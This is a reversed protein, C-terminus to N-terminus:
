PTTTPPNTRGVRQGAPRPNQHRARYGNLADKFNNWNTIDLTGDPRITYDDKKFGMFMALTGFMEEGKQKDGLVQRCAELHGNLRDAFTSENGDVRSLPALEERMQELSTNKVYKNFEVDEFADSYAGRGKIAEAYFRRPSSDSRTAVKGVVDLNPMAGDGRIMTMKEGMLMDEGKTMSSDYGGILAYAEASYGTNWGGTIVRNWTYNWNPNNEPRYEKRRWLSESFDWLRRNMFLFDNEMMEDPYRDQIGRAADFQPNEDLKTMLNYATKRDVRLLDADESEIYLAKSQGARQLSRMLNLDTLVKRAHGVNAHDRDFTVDVYNIHYDKGQARSDAIFRQIEAVTGDPAMDDRRNVLINIEFLRPNLPTGDRNTQQAYEQLATYISKEEMHAPINISVRNENTMATMSSERSLRELETYYAPDAARISELYKTINERERAVSREVPNGDKDVWQLTGDPNTIKTYTNLRDPNNKLWKQMAELTGGGYYMGIEPRDRPTPAPRMAELPHRPAFPVAVFPMDWRFNNYETATPAVVHAHEIPNALVNDFKIKWAENTLQGYIKDWKDQPIDENGFFEHRFDFVPVGNEMRTFGHIQISEPNTSGDELTPPLYTLSMKGLIEDPNLGFAAGENQAWDDWSRGLLNLSQFQDRTNLLFNGQKIITDPMKDPGNQALGTLTALLNNTKTEHTTVHGANLFDKFAQPLNDLGGATIINGDKDIWAPTGFAPVRDGNADIAFFTVARTGNDELDPSAALVLNESLGINQPNDYLNKITEMTVPPNEQPLLDKLGAMNAGHELATRNIFPNPINHEQLRDSVFRGGVALAEQSVFGFGLGAASAFAGAGLANRLRYHAFRRDQRERNDTFRQAWEGRFNGLMQDMEADSMGATRLKVRAEAVARVLELRGQEVQERSEFHILDVAQQTSFDQREQIEAIRRLVSERNTISATDAGSLDLALLERLGRSDGGLVPRDEQTGNAQRRRGGQLLERVSAYEYSYDELAERRPANDPIINGYTREVQHSQMDHKLDTNRRVAALVGGGLAGGLPGLIRATDGVVRGAGFGVLSAAIGVTAPNVLWGHGTRQSWAVVRDAANFNAQTQAAWVTRALKVDVYQDMQDLAYKNTDVDEKVANAVELLDTAFYEAIRGYQTADAGFIEQVSADAQNDRVFQELTRRIEAPDTLTGNVVPRLVDRLIAEKLPGQAERVVEGRGLSGDRIRELTARGSEQEQAIRHNADTLAMHTIDYDMYSNGAALMGSRIEQIYTQRYYEEGVRLRIKRPWNLPNWANGLKMEERLRIEAVERARKEIDATRNNIVITRHQIEETTTGTPTNAGPTTNPPTPSLPVTTTPPLRLEWRKNLTDAAAYYDAAEDPGSPHPEQSKYYAEQRIRNVMQDPDTRHPFDADYFHKSNRVLVALSEQLAAKEGPDMAPDQIKEHLYLILEEVPIGEENTFTDKEGTDVDDFTNEYTDKGNALDTRGLAAEIADKAKQQDPTLSTDKKFADFGSDFARAVSEKTDAAEPKYEVEPGGLKNIEAM